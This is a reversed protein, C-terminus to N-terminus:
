ALVAPLTAIAMENRKVIVQDLGVRGAAYDQHLNTLSATEEATFKHDKPFAMAQAAIAVNGATKAHYQFANGGVLEALRAAYDDPDLTEGNEIYKILGVINAKITAKLNEGAAVNAANDLFRKATANEALRRASEAKSNAFQKFRPHEQLEEDSLDDISRPAPTEPVEVNEPPTEENGDPMETSIQSEPQAEDAVPQEIEGTAPADLVAVAADPQTM